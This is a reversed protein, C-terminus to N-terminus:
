GVGGERERNVPTLGADCDSPEGQGSAAGKGKM